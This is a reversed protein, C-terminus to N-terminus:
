FATEVFFLCFAFNRHILVCEPYLIFAYKIEMALAVLVFFLDSNDDCNLECNKLRFDILCTKTVFLHHHNDTYIFSHIFSDM